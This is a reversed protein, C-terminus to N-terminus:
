TVPLVVVAVPVHVILVVNCPAHQSAISPEFGVVAVHQTENSSFPIPFFYRFACFTLNTPYFIQIALYQLTISKRNNKLLRYLQKGCYITPSFTM